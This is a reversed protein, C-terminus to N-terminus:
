LANHVALERVRYMSCDRCGTTGHTPRINTTTRRTRAERLLQRTSTATPSTTLRRM